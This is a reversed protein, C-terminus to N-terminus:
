GRLCLCFCSESDFCSALEKVYPLSREAVDSGDVAVLLRNFITTRSRWEETPRLLLIPITSSQIVESAVSGLVLRGVGSRGHTSMVMLDVRNQSAMAWIEEAVEGSTVMPNVKIGAMGMQSAVQSLYIEQDGQSVRKNPRSSFWRPRREQPSHNVSLLSMRAILRM